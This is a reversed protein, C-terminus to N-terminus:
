LESRLVTKHKEKIDYPKGCYRQKNKEAVLIINSTSYSSERAKTTTSPPFDFTGITKYLLILVVRVIYEAFDCSVSYGDIDAECITSYNEDCVEYGAQIAHVYIIVFNVVHNYCTYHICM